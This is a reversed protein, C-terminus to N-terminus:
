LKYHHLFLVIIAIKWDSHLKTWRCLSIWYIICTKIHLTHMHFYQSILYM